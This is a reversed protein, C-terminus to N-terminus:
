NMEKHRSNQVFTNGNVRVSNYIVTTNTFESYRVTGSRGAWKGEATDRSHTGNGLNSIVNQEVWTVMCM